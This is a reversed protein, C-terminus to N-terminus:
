RFNRSLEKKKQNSEQPVWESSTFSAFAHAHRARLRKFSICSSTKLRGCNSRSAPSARSARWEKFGPWCFRVLFLLFSPLSLLLLLMLLLLLLLLLLLFVPLFPEFRIIERQNKDAPRKRWSGSEGSSRLDIM